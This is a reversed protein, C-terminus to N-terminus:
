GPGLIIRSQTNRNQPHSDPSPQMLWLDGKWCLEVRLGVRSKGDEPVLHPNRPRGWPGSEKQSRHPKGAPDRCHSLFWPPKGKNYEAEGSRCLCQGAPGGPAWQGPFYWYMYPRVGPPNSPPSPLTGPVQRVQVPKGATDGLPSLENGQMGHLQPEESRSPCPTHTPPSHLSPPTEFLRLSIMLFPMPGSQDAECGWTRGDM